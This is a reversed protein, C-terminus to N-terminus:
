FELEKEAIKAAEEICEAIAKIRRPNNMTLFNYDRGKGPMIDFTKSDYNVTLWVYVLGEKGSYDIYTTSVKSQRQTVNEM